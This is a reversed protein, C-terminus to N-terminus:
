ISALAEALARLDAISRDIVEVAADFNQESEVMANHADVVSVYIRPSNEVLTM